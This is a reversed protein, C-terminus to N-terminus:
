AQWDMPFRFKFINIMLLCTMYKESRYSVRAIHSEIQASSPELEATNALHYTSQPQESIIIHPVSKEVVPVETEQSGAAAMQQHLGSVLSLMARVHHEFSLIEMERQEKMKEVTDLIISMARANDEHQKQEKYLDMTKKRIEVLEKRTSQTWLILQNAQEQLMSADEPHYYEM